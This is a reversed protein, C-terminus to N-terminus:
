SFLEQELWGAGDLMYCKGQDLKDFADRLVKTARATAGM